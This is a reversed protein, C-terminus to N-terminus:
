DEWPWRKVTWILMKRMNGASNKRKQKPLIALLNDRWMERLRPTVSWPHVEIARSIEIGALGDPWQPRLLSIIEGRLWEVDVYNYKSTPPHSHRAPLPGTL